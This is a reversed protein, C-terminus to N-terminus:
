LYYWTMPENGGESHVSPHLWPPLPGIVDPNESEDKDKETKSGVSEDQSPPHPGICDSDLSEDDTERDKKSSSLTEQYGSSVFNQYHSPRPGDSRSTSPTEKRRVPTLNDYHPRFEDHRDKRRKTVWEEQTMERWERKFLLKEFAKIKDQVVALEKSPDKDSEKSEEQRSAEETETPVEAQAKEEEKAIEEPTEEEPPLGARIRQRVRAAKLRNEEMKSKMQRMEENEKQKMQTERRLKALNEQQKARIEEDQSFAYYGVGHARAENFLLDQYHIDHKDSLKATQEEWKKRMAELGPESKPPNVEEPPERIEGAELEGENQPERGFERQFWTLFM